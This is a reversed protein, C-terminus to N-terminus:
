SLKIGERYDLLETKLVSKALTIDFSSNVPRPALVKVDSMTVPIIFQKDLKKQGAMELGFTYRDTQCDGGLHIIGKFDNEGLELLASALFFVLNFNVVVM